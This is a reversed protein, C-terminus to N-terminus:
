GAGFLSLMGGIELVRRVGSPVSRVSFQKDQALARQRIEVWSGIGTSDLFALEDLDLVLARCQARDLEAFAVTRLQPVTAIDLEGQLNVITTEGERTVATAFTAMPM